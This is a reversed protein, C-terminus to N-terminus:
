AFLPQSHRGPGHGPASATVTQGVHDAPSTKGTICSSSMPHNSYPRTVRVNPSLGVRVFNKNHRLVTSSPEVRVPPMTLLTVESGPRGPWDCYGTIIIAGLRLLLFPTQQWPIKIFIRRNIVRLLKILSRRSNPFLMTPWQLLAGGHLRM